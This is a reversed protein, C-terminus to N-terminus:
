LLNISLQNKYKEDYLNKNIMLVKSDTWGVYYKYRSNSKEFKKNLELLGELNDLEIENKKPDFINSLTDEFNQHTSIMKEKIKYLIYKHPNEKTAIPISHNNFFDNMINFLDNTNEIAYEKGTIREYLDTIPKLIYTPTIIVHPPLLQSTTYDLYMTFLSKCTAFRAKNFPILYYKTGYNYLDQGNFSYDKHVFDLSKLKSPYGNWSKTETMKFFLKHHPTDRCYTIHKSTDIYLYDTNKEIMRILFPNNFDYNNCNKEFIDFFDNKSLEYTYDNYNISEYFKNFNTIM